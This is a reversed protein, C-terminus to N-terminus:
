QLVVRMVGGSCDTRGNGGFAKPIRSLLVEDVQGEFADGVLEVGKLVGSGDGLLEVAGQNYGRNSGVTMVTEPCMLGPTVVHIELVHRYVCADRQYLPVVDFM